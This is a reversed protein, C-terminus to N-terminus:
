SQKERENSVHRTTNTRMGGLITQSTSSSIHLPDLTWESSSVVSQCALSSPNTWLTLCSVSMCSLWHDTRHWAASQCALSGTNLVKDPLQSVYLLALTWYPTLCSVPMCPLWHETRHWAASQRVLSSTNLVPDPLQCVLWYETRHWAASQCALFGTNLVTDPLQSAHLLALTWYPTLLKSVYFIAM